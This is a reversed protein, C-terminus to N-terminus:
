TQEGERRTGTAVCICDGARRGRVGSGLITQEANLILVIKAM